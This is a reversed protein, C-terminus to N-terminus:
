NINKVFYFLEDDNENSNLFGKLFSFNNKSNTYSNTLTKTLARKKSILRKAVFMMMM